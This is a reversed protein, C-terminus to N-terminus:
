IADNNNNNNDNNNNTCLLKTKQWGSSELLEPERCPGAIQYEPHKAGEEMAIVLNCLTQLETFVPEEPLQLESLSGVCCPVRSMRADALEM